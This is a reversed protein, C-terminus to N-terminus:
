DGDRALANKVVVFAGDDDVRFEDVVARLIRVALGDIDDISRAQEVGTRQATVTMGHGAIEFRVRLRAGDRGDVDALVSVAENVGLRLDEIEDITLGADAGLSAAVVRVTSAHRHALPLDLEVIEPSRDSSRENAGTEFNASM